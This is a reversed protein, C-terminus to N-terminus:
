HWTGQLGSLDGQLGSYFVATEELKGQFSM